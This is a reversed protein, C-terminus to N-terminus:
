LAGGIIIIYNKSKNILKIDNILRDFIGSYSLTFSNRM